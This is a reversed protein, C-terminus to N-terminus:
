VRPLDLPAPPATDFRIGQALPLDRSYNIPRFLSLPQALIGVEAPHAGQTRRCPREAAQEPHPFKRIAM